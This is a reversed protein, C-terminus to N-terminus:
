AQRGKREELGALSRRVEPMADYPVDAGLVGRISVEGGSAVLDADRAALSLIIELLALNSLLLRRKLPEQVVGAGVGVDGGIRSSQLLVVEQARYASRM